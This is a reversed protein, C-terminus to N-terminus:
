PAVAKASEVPRRDHVIIAPLEPLRAFEPVPAFTASALALEWRDYVANYEAGIVQADDPIPHEIVEYRHEGATFLEVLLPASIYLLAARRERFAPSMVLRENPNFSM